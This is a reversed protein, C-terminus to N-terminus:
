SCHLFSADAGEGFGPSMGALYSGVGLRLKGQRAAAAQMNDWGVVEMGRLRSQKLVWTNSRDRSVGGGQQLPDM